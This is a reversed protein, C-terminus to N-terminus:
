FAKKFLFYFVAIAALIGFAWPAGELAVMMIDVSTATKNYDDSIKTENSLEQQGTSILSMGFALLVFIVVMAIALPVWKM